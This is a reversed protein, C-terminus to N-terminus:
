SLRRVTLRPLRSDQPIGQPRAPPKLPEPLAEPRAPVRKLSGTHPTADKVLRSHLVLIDLGSAPM